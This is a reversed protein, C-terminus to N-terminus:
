LKAEYLQKLQGSSLKFISLYKTEKNLNFRLFLEGKERRVIHKAMAGTKEDSTEFIQNLPDPVSYSEIVKGDDDKIVVYLSGPEYGEPLFQKKVQGETYRASRQQFFYVDNVSDKLSLELTLFVIKNGDDNRELRLSQLAKDDKKKKSASDMKASRCGALVFLVATIIWANKKAVSIVKMASFLKNGFTLPLFSNFM